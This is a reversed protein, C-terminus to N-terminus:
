LERNEGSLRAMLEAADADLARALAFFESMYLRRQGLEVRSIRSTPCGLRQALARQTLGAAVRAERLLRGL